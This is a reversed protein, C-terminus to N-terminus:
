SAEFVTVPLLAGRRSIAAADTCQFFREDGRIASRSDDIPLSASMPQLIVAGVIHLIVFAALVVAIAATQKRSTSATSRRMRSHDIDTPMRSIENKQLERQKSARRPQAIRRCCTGAIVSRARRRFVDRSARAWAAFFTLCVRLRRIRREGGRRRLHFRQVPTERAAVNSPSDESAM